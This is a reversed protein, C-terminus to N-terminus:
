SGKIQQAKKRAYLRKQAERTCSKCWSSRGRAMRIDVGFEVEPKREGCKTCHLPKSVV